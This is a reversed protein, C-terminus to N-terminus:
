GSGELHFTANMTLLSTKEGDRGRIVNLSGNDQRLERARSLPVGLLNAITVRNVINHAVLVISRGRHEALLRDIAPGARDFVDRYSEGGPYGVTAADDIFAQYDDADDQMISDWDRGEWRGVDCEVVEPVDVVDLGHPEAIAEATEHARALPSAFVADIRREALFGAVAAAQRRGTESLSQDVGHGQLVYPRQENSPTAGHRVLYLLTTDHPTM